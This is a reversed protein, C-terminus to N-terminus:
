AISEKATRHESVRYISSIPESYRKEIAGYITFQWINPEIHRIRTRYLDTLLRWDKYFRVELYPIDDVKCELCFHTMHVVVHIIGYKNEAVIEYSDEDSALVSDISLYVYSRHNNFFKIRSDDSPIPVDIRANQGKLFYQINPSDVQLSPRTGYEEFISTPPRKTKNISEQKEEQTLCFFFSFSKRRLCMFLGKFKRIPCNSIIQFRFNNDEILDDDNLQKSLYKRFASKSTEGTPLKLSPLRVKEEALEIIFQATSSKNTDITIIYEGNDNIM